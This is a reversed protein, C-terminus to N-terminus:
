ASVAAPELSTVGNIPREGALQLVPDVALDTEVRSAPRSKRCVGGVEALYRESHHKGSPYRDVGVSCGYGALGPLLTLIPSPGSYLADNEM